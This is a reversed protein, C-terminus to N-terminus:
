VDAKDGGEAGSNRLKDIVDKIIWDPTSAGATIGIKGIGQDKLAWDPLESSNEIFLTNECNRKCIEYLKKTNSSHKGGIVIMLDVIKSLEDASEQREKTASCITNFTLVESCKKSVIEVVKGYNDLKETTQSVICVKPPLEPLDSGDKTIIATNGCWGNIGIVEPHDKDGVIIIQYGKAHYKQVKKQISAVYPCTADIMTAGTKEIERILEPGVGHSRIVVADGPGLKDLDRRNIEQINQSRLRKVVDENHILPGLTYTNKGEKKKYDLTIDVARKVGFCFGANKAVIIERAM